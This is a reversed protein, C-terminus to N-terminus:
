DHLCLNAMQHEQIGTHKSLATNEINKGQSEKNLRNAKTCIKRHM